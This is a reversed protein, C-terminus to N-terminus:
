IGEAARLMRQYMRGKRSGLFIFNGPSCRIASDRNEVVSRASLMESQLGM